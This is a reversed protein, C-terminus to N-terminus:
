QGGEDASPGYISPVPIDKLRLYVSAQGRHHILHNLVFGRLVAAKPMTMLVKEGNLLSWESMMDADSMGAIAARAKTVNQDFAALLGSTTDHTPRAGRTNEALNVSPGAAAVNAWTPIEAMHAALNAIDMSKAHPKWKPDALPIRELVKRTKAMEQDYEPLLMDKIAM